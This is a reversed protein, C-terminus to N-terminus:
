AHSSKTRSPRGKTVSHLLNPSSSSHYEGGGSYAARITHEGTNLHAVKFQARGRKDLKTPPKVPVGDVIFTVSGTPAKKQPTRPLVIATVLLSERLKTQPKNGFIQVATSRLRLDQAILYAKAFTEDGTTAVDFVCFANLDDQTVKKCIQKAKAIPIRRRIPKTPLPFGPKVTTCPPKQPPWDRDTYTATSKAPTYMFMSTADTVRWADAFTKYLAIYRDNLSAPMPGLTAGSPLAPLWTGKSIRGMLGEEANTNSVDIDLYHIGYSTWFHPTVIVVPGHAYDIRLGTEGGADFASVRHADLDMGGRPLDTPEGDCFFRLRSPEKWPQYSIWHSGVRAAAATNLSVCATLGSYDDKIPPPTVAPTQRTQIEMGELDRLLTFEGVAQFDYRTGDVTRIHPDGQDSANDAGGVQLRFVAQDKRGDTDEATIYVYENSAPDGPASPYEWTWSGGPHFGPGAPSTISGKSATLKMQLGDRHFFAGHRIAPIGGPTAYVWSGGVNVNPKERGNASTVVLESIMGREHHFFIHCHFLWRGM